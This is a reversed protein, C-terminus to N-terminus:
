QNPMGGVEQLPELERAIRLSERRGNGVDVKTQSGRGKRTAQIVALEKLFLFILRNGSLEKGKSSFCRLKSM